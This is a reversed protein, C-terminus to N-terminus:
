LNWDVAKLQAEIGNAFTAEVRRAHVIKGEIHRRLSLVSRFKLARAHQSPPVGKDALMYAHLRLKNRYERTLRPQVGDVILGLVIKRAGPPVIRTKTVHPKLGQRDLEYMVKGIVETAQDRDFAKSATSLAIDDAYRTYTLGYTDAITTIREDLDRVALNALMPSTPAGQPLSGMPLAPRPNGWQQVEVSRDSARYGRNRFYPDPKPNEKLREYFSPGRGVLDSTMGAGGDNAQDPRVRTCLRTLEFALLRPYGLGRFVRYVAPEYISEFFNQVDLKILWRCQCHLRAVAVIDAERHFAVSAPHRPATHLIRQLIWRQQAMLGPSPVAIRRLKRPAPKATRRGDTKKSLFFQRYPEPGWRGAWDRLKFYSIGGLAALHGLTFVVAREPANITIRHAVKLATQLGPEPKKLARGVKLYHQSSFSM